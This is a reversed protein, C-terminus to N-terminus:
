ARIAQGGELLPAPPFPHQGGTRVANALLNTLIQAAREADILASAPMPGRIHRRMQIRKVKEEFRKQIRVSDWSRDLVDKRPDAREPRVAFQNEGDLGGNLADEVLSLIQGGGGRIIGQLNPSALSRALPSHSSTIGIGPPACPVPFFIGRQQKKKKVPRERVLLDKQFDTVRTSM